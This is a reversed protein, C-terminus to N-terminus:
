CDQVVVALVEQVWEEVMEVCVAVSGGSGSSEDLAFVVGSGVHEDADDLRVWHSQACWHLECYSAGDSSKLLVVDVDRPLIM